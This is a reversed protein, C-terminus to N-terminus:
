RTMPILLVPVKSNRAVNHSVSGLFIESVFGHGQSGMAILSVKNKKSQRLIEVIPYGSIVQIDISAKGKSMLKKQMKELRAIDIKNFEALRHVLHPTIRTKNQVHLLTIRKAGSEVIKQLYEFAHDANKSFDTPFLVHNLFDSKSLHINKKNDINIRILLTPKVAHHIVASAVGGLLIESALTNGHSGVVVLPYKKEHALKNIEVQPSGMVVETKVRFGQKELIRKQEALNSILLDRITGFAIGPLEGLGLCQLLLCDKTGLAKLGGLHKVVAFSVPSLDTAILAKSFM